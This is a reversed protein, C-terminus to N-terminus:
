GFFKIKASGELLIEFDHGSARFRELILDIAHSVLDVAFVQFKFGLSGILPFGILVIAIRQM